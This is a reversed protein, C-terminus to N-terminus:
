VRWRYERIFPAERTDFTRPDNVLVKKLLWGGDKGAEKVPNHAGADRHKEYVRILPTGEWYYNEGGMLDRLSFWEDPRNKCWCYVAGQLFDAIRDKEDDTLGSVERLDADSTLAVCFCLTISLNR